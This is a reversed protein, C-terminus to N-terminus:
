SQPHGLFIRDSRAKNRVLLTIESFKGIASDRGSQELTVPFRAATGLFVIAFLVALSQDLVVFEKRSGRKLLTFELSRGTYNVIKSEM